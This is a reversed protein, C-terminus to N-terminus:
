SPLSNEFVKGNFTLHPMLEKMEEETLEIGESALFNDLDQIDIM